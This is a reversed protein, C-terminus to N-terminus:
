AIPSWHAFAAAQGVVLGDSDILNWVTANEILFRKGTKSIRIGSYDDIYGQSSVRDLLRQRDERALPEASLRSPLTIMERWTMEFLQQAQLNAYFFVPDPAFEHALVVFPAHYLNNAIQDPCESEPLLERQLLRAHSGLILDTNEAQFHNPEAPEDRNFKM